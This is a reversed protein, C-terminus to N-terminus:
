RTGQKGPKPRSDALSEVVGVAGKRRLHSWSSLATHLSAASSPPSSSAGGSGSIRALLNRESTSSRYMSRAGGQLRGGGACCTRGNRCPRHGCKEMKQRLGCHARHNAQTACYMTQSPSAEQGATHSSCCAHCANAGRSRSAEQHEDGTRPQLHVGIRALLLRRGLRSALLLGVQLPLLALRLLPLRVLLTRAPWGPKLASCLAAPAARPMM